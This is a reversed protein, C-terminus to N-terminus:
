QEDDTLITIVVGDKVRIRHTDTPFTGNGVTRIATMVSDPAIKKKIEDLNVGMVREFYRLIAHESIVLKGNNAAASKIREIDKQLKNITAQEKNIKDDLAQKEDKLAKVTARSEDLRRQLHKLEAHDAPSTAGM